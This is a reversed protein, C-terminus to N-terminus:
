CLQAAFILLVEIVRCPRNPVTLLFQNAQRTNRTPVQFSIANLCPYALLSFTHSITICKLCKGDATNTQHM